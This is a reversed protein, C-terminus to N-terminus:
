DFTIQHKQSGDKRMIWLRGSVARSDTYVIWEGDPSWDCSYGQTETLQKLNKGDSNMIWIQPPGGYPQSTFAIMSGDLSYKPYSDSGNNYTLRIPKNGSSDMGFIEPTGIGISRQHIIRRSDPAWDPMRWEGTGHKSIDEKHTGDNKMKWIVNAGDSDHVNSDYAIWKGDTSWDPFFNSGEFTLQTLSDGNVKIKFIQAQDSFDIWEGDPSWTPSYARIGPYFIQKNSGSTDILYIGTKENVTDGHIYAIIRGDPAWAPEFDTLRFDFPCNNCPPDDSNMPNDKCSNWSCFGAISIIIFLIKHRRM